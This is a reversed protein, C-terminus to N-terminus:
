VVRFKGLRSPEFGPFPWSVPTASMSAREMAAVAAAPPTSVAAVSRGSSTQSSRTDYWKSALAYSCRTYWPNPAASASRSRTYPGLILSQGSMSGSASFIKSRTAELIMSSTVVVSSSIGEPSVLEYRELGSPRASNM